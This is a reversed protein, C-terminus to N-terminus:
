EGEFNRVKKEHRKLFRGVFWAALGALVTTIIYFLSGAKGAGPLRGHLFSLLPQLGLTYLLFVTVPPFLILFLSSLVEALPALPGPKSKEKQQLAVEQRRRYGYVFLFIYLLMSVANDPQMKITFVCLLATIIGSFIGLAGKLLTFLKSYFVKYVVPLEREGATSKIIVKGNEEFGAHATALDSVDAIASLVFSDRKKETRFTINKMRPFTEAIKLNGKEPLMMIYDLKVKSGLLVAGFRFNGKERITLYELSYHVAIKHLSLGNNSTVTIDARFENLGSQLIAAHSLHMESPDLTLTITESKHLREIFNRDVSLGPLLEPDFEIKIESHTGKGPNTLIISRSCSDDGTFLRGFDVEEASLFLEPKKLVFSVPLLASNLGNNTLIHLYGGFPTSETLSLKEAASFSERCDLIIDINRGQELRPIFESSLHLFELNGEQQFILNFHDGKGPNTLKITCVHPDEGIYIDGFNVEAPSMLIEPIRINYSIDIIENIWGDNATIILQSRYNRNVLARNRYGQEADIVVSVTNENGCLHYEQAEQENYRFFAFPVEDDRFRIHLRYIFGNMELTGPYGPFSRINKFLLEEGKAQEGIYIDGFDLEHKLDYRPLFSADRNLRTRVIAEICKQIRYDTFHIEPLNQEALIKDEETLIVELADAMENDYIRIAAVENRFNELALSWHEFSNMILEEYRFLQIRKVPNKNILFNCIPIQKVRINKRAIFQAFEEETLYFEKKAIRSLEEIYYAEVEESNGVLGRASFFAYGHQEFLELGSKLSKGLQKLLATVENLLSQDLVPRIEELNDIFFSKKKLDLYYRAIELLRERNDVFYKEQKEALWATFTKKLDYIEGKVKETTRNVWNRFEVLTAKDEKRIIGLHLAHTYLTYHEDLSLKFDDLYTLLRAELIDMLKARLPEDIEKEKARPNSFNAKIKNIIKNFEELRSLDTRGWEQKAQRTLSDIKNNIRERNEETLEAFNPLGFFLYYNGLDHLAEFATNLLQDITETKKKVQEEDGLFFQEPQETDLYLPEKGPDSSNHKKESTNEAPLFHDDTM